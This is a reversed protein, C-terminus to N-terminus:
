RRSQSPPSTQVRRLDHRIEKLVDTMGEIKTEIRTLRSAYPTTAETKLEVAGLRASFTALAWGAAFTQVALTIILALPIRRDLTWHPTADM